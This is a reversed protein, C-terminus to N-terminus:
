FRGAGSNQGISFGGTVAFTMNEGPAEYANVGLDQPGFTVHSLRHVGVRNVSLRFANITNPDILYTSGIAHSQALKDFGDANFSTLLNGTVAYPPPDYYSAMVSRWFVSHKPTQQYDVKWVGKNEDPRDPPTDIIRGCPDATTPLRSALALSAKTFASPN